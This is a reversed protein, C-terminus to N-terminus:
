RSGGGRRRRRSSSGGESAGAEESTTTGSSADDVKEEEGPLAPADTPTTGSPAPAKAVPARYGAIEIAGQDALRKAQPTHAIRDPLTKHVGGRSDICRGDTMVRWGLLQATKGIAKVKAM